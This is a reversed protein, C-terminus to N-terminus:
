LVSCLGVRDGVPAGVAVGLAGIAFRGARRRADIGVLATLAVLGCLVVRQPLYNGHDRGLTDPGVAGGVVLLVALIWWGRLRGVPAAKAEADARHRGRGTRDVWQMALWAVLAAALWFVPAMMLFRPGVQDTFPLADKRMLTIPDAWSLQTRWGSLSLPNPFNEWLPNMPGGRSALRLYALGLPLLPLAAAALPVLRAALMRWPMRGTREGQSSGPLPTALALIGLGLVTLGLSVLHCFYGLIFLGWLVLVDRARLRDRRPWWYGLTLPFLCAGMTFSTFGLLWTLNMALLAALLASAPLHGAVPGPSSSRKRGGQMSGVALDPTGAVQLRLWYVAAAFGALTSTTVIREAVQAPLIRTLLALLVHGFWNPIPEWRVAFIAEFPSDRDFWRALIEANYVHAPSDQTVFWPVAWVATLAPALALVPPDIGTGM